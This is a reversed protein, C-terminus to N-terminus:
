AGNGTGDGGEEESGRHLGMDSHARMTSGEGQLSRAGAPVVRSCLLPTLCGQTQDRNGSYKKHEM